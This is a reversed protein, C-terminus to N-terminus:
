IVGEDMAVSKKRLKAAIMRERQMSGLKGSYRAAPARFKPSRVRKVFVQNGLKSMLRRPSAVVKGQLGHESGPGPAETNTDPDVKISLEGIENQTMEIKMLLERESAKLAEVWAQAAAIKKDALEAAGGAKGTLYEYEFNTITIMSSNTSATDRTKATTNILSRLNGLAKTESSKIAKLEEMAAELREEAVDIEHDTKRIEENMNEIDENITDKDKKATVSEARLQELTIALNSALDNDAEILAFEVVAQKEGLEQLEKKMLEMSALLNSTKFSSAKSSREAHRKEKMVRAMDLKLKGLEQQMHKLEMMVEAYRADENKASTEADEEQRWKPKRQLGKSRLNAEEIQSALDRVAKKADSLEIELRELESKQMPSKDKKNQLLNPDFVPNPSLIQIIFFPIPNSNSSSDHCNQLVPYLVLLCLTCGKVAVFVRCMMVYWFSKGLFKLLCNQKRQLPLSCLNGPCLVFPQHTLYLRENAVVLYRPHIDQIFQSPQVHEELPPNQVKCSTVM